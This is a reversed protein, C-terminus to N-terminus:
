VTACISRSISLFLFQRVKLLPISKWKLAIENALMTKGIGPAGEILPTEPMITSPNTQLPGFLDSVNKSHEDYQLCGNQHMDASGADMESSVRLTGKDIYKEKHFIIIM